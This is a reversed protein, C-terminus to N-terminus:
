GQATLIPLIVKWVGEAVLAAGSANPHIGDGQNLEPREAVGDLLFPVLAIKNSKALAPFIAGFSETYDQGMSPPMRMGALVIRTDPYRSHVRDIIAQLNAQTVGTATGRLGDNAGLALVFVDPKQNLVWDIRRLGGASTEGSLGANVVHWPLHGADIKRQIQAPYSQSGPDALGFGATLSDGFFIITHEAAAAALSSPASALALLLLSGARLALIGWRRLKTGSEM